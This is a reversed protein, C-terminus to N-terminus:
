NCRSNFTFYRAFRRPRSGLNWAGCVNKWSKPYVFSRMYKNTCICVCIYVCKHVTIHVDVYRFQALTREIMHRGIYCHQRWEWLHPLYNANIFIYIYITQSFVLCIWIMENRYMQRELCAKIFIKGCSQNILWSILIFTRSDNRHQFGQGHDFESSRDLLILIM